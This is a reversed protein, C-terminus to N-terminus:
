KGLKAISAEALPKYKEATATVSQNNVLFDEMFAYTPYEPFSDDLLIRGTGSIHDRTMIVDEEHTYMGELWEQSPFDETAPIDFTEEYVRYVLDADKIGKPIFQANAANDAYTVDPTGQPGNPVPVVGIDFTLDGLQWQAAIFMAVNGDKFTNSEEWNTKNGTKVNVVNEVNYMRNVFEAAEITRPDTFGQTGSGEDVIFGGNSTALHRFLDIAWGSYGYVDIKGDNDTDKTAQKAVEMFKDWNWQGSTYLEQLDPLGQKKFLDRNYHIGVGGTFPTGFAYEDGAIPAGKALWNAENNINSAATTFESVKLLQGKLIAPLAAKYEMQVIDAFPEGALITATFKPMYEEFPVNVFEFKVNYKKEVEEIKALRAKESTTNGAPKLDWWSAVKIVRGGMDVAEQVPEESPADTAKNVANEKPANTASPTNGGSCATLVMMLCLVLVSLGQIKRM